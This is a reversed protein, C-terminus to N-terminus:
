VGKFFESVPTVEPPGGFFEAFSGQINGGHGVDLRKHQTHSDADLDFYHIMVEDPTIIGDRVSQLLGSLLHESHTAMIFQKQTQEAQKAFWKGLKYQAKPHLNVEPEEVLVTGIDRTVFCQGLLHVLQNTGFGENTMVPRHGTARLSLAAARRQPSVEQELGVGTIELLAQSVLQRLEADYILTTALNSAGRM